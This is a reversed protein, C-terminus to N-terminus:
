FQAEFITKGDDQDLVAKSLDAAEAIEGVTTDQYGKDYFLDRAAILIANRRDLKEKKKRTAVSMLICGKLSTGPQSLSTLQGITM